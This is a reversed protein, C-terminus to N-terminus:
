VVVGELAWADNVMQWRSWDGTTIGPKCDMTHSLAPSAALDQQAPLLSGSALLRALCWPRFNM